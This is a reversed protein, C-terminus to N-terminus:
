VAANAQSGNKVIYPGFNILADIEEPSADRLIQHLHYRMENWGNAREGARPGHEMVPAENQDFVNLPNLSARKLSVDDLDTRWPPDFSPEDDTMYRLMEAHDAPTIPLEGTLGYYLKKAHSLNAAAESLTNTYQTHGFLRKRAILENPTMQDRYEDIDSGNSQDYARSVPVDRYPRTIPNLVHGEEHDLVARLPYSGYRRKLMFPDVEITSYDPVAGAGAGRGPMIGSGSITWVPLNEMREVRKAQSMASWFRDGTESDTYGALKGIAQPGVSLNDTPLGLQQLLIDEVGPYSLDMSRIQDDQKQGLSLLSERIKRWGEDGYSRRAIDAGTTRGLSAVVPKPSTPSSYEIAYEGNADPEQTRALSDWTNEMLVGADEPEMDADFHVSHVPKPPAARRSSTTSALGQARNALKRPSAM